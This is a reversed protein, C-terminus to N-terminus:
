RKEWPQDAQPTCSQEDDVAELGDLIAMLGAPTYGLSIAREICTAWTACRGGEAHAILAAADAVKVQHSLWPGIDPVVLTQAVTALLPHAESCEFVGDGIAYLTAGDLRRLRVLWHWPRATDSASRPQNGDELQWCEGGLFWAALVGRLSELSQVSWRHVRDDSPRGADDLGIEERLRGWVELPLGRRGGLAAFLNSKEVGIAAALSRVSKPQLRCLAALAPTLRKM